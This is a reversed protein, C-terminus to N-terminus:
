YRPVGRERPHRPRADRVFTHLSTWVQYATSKPTMVMDYLEDTITAYIWLVITIDEHRWVADQELPNTDAEVHGQMDFKSLVFYMIQRWKSYNGAALDLKFPVYSTINIHHMSPGTVTSAAPHDLRSAFATALPLADTAAAFGVRGASSGRPLMSIDVAPTSAPATNAPATPNAYDAADVAAADGASAPDGLVPSEDDSSM